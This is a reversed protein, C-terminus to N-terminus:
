IDKFYFNLEGDFHPLDAPATSMMPNCWIFFCYIGGDLLSGADQTNASYKLRRGIGAAKRLDLDLFTCAVASTATSSKAEMVVARDVLVSFRKSNSQLIGSSFNVPSTSTTLVEALSPTAAKNDHDRVVLVRLCGCIDAPTSSDQMVMGRIRLGVEQVVDGTRNMVDAGQLCSNLLPFGGLSLVTGSESIAVGTVSRTVRKTENSAIISKKVKKLIRKETSTARKRGVM